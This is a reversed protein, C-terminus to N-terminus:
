SLPVNFLVKMCDRYVKQYQDPDLNDLIDIADEYKIKKGETDHMANAIIEYQADLDGKDAKRILKMKPKKDIMLDFEVEKTM